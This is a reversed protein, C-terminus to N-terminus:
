KDKIEDPGEPLPVNALDERGLYHIALDRFILDVISTAMKIRKHFQVPGNPPFKTFTFRDVLEALPHGLQLALSVLISFQSYMARIHDDGKNIDIFIEALSGDDYEGTRLFFTQDGIKLKQNYGNRRQSPKNINM